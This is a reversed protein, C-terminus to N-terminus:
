GPFDTKRPPEAKAAAFDTKFGDSKKLERVIAQAPVSGAYMDTPYHRAIQVRHWGMLRAYAIIEDHKDPVLDAFVLALTMSGTSHGSPHSFSTKLKSNALSPRHRLPAPPPLLIKGLDTVAAAHHPTSATPQGAALYHLELISVSQGLAMTDQARLPATVLLLGAIAAARLFM